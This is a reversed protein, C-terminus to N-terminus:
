HVQARTAASNRKVSSNLIAVAERLAADHHHRLDDLTLPVAVDPVIGIGELRRSKATLIGFESIDVEAGGRVKHAVTALVCGCTRRGVIAARGNEQMGASFLEAGSGSGDNVLIVVPGAYLQGGSHGAELQAPVGFLRLLLSPSGGSRTIVKGFSVKNPFFGDAIRTVLQLQGGPNGRLDVVLGPADRLRELAKRFQSAGQGNFIALRIYAYGSPLTRSELPPTLSVLRRTLTVDLNGGDARQLGLRLKTGPEGALIWHYSILLAARESSSIGVERRAEALRDAFPIADVTTIIMGPEAGGRSAESDPDVATVVPKGDLNVISIGISTGQMRRVRVRESPSHFRTHADHLEGTMAKLLAYLEDDNRAANIRPRYRERVARWDVGNFAPDYYKEDILRWVQELLARRESPSLSNRHVTQAPDAPRAQAPAASLCCTVIALVLTRALQSWLRQRFITM